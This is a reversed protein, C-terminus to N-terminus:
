QNYQLFWAAASTQPPLLLNDLGCLNGCEGLRTYMPSLLLTWTVLAEAWRERPCFAFAFFSM